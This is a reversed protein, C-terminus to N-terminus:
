QKNYTQERAACKNINIVSHSINEIVTKKVRLEVYQWGKKDGKFSRQKCYYYYEALWRDNNPKNTPPPPLTIEDGAFEPFSFQDTIRNM